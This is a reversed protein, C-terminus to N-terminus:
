CLVEELNRIRVPCFLLSANKPQFSSLHQPRDSRLTIMLGTQTSFRSVANVETLSIGSVLGPFLDNIWQESFVALCSSAEKIESKKKFTISRKFQQKQQVTTCFVGMHNECDSCQLQMNLIFLHKKKLGLMPFSLLHSCCVLTRSPAVINSWQRTVRLRIIGKLRLWTCKLLCSAVSHSFEVKLVRIKLVPTISSPHTHQHNRRCCTEAM